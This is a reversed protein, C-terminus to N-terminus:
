QFEMGARSSWRRSQLLHREAPKERRRHFAPTSDTLKDYLFYSFLGILKAREDGRMSFPTVFRGL